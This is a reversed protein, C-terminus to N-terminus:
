SKRMLIVVGDKASIERRHKLAALARYVAERTLGIEAAVDTWTQTITATPPNGTARLRLWGLVRENASRINRLELQARLDRVQAALLRAFRLGGNQDAQIGALFDAKSISTVVSSMEAVADCHYSDIFASAEAFTEGAHAAHLVVISGDELHRVLRVRGSEVRYMVDIHEGQRFLMEGAVLHRSYRTAVGAILPWREPRNDDSPGTM